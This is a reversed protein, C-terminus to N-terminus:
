TGSGLAQATLMFAFFSCIVLWTFALPWVWPRFRPALFITVALPLGIVFSWNWESYFRNEVILVEALAAGAIVSLSGIGVRIVSNM